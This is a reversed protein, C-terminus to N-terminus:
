SHIKLNHFADVIQEEKELWNIIDSKEETNQQIKVEFASPSASKRKETM